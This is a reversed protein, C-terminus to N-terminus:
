PLNHKCNIMGKDNSSLLMIFVFHWELKEYMSEDSDNIAYHVKAFIM